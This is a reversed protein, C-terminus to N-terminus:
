GSAGTLLRSAAAAEQGAAALLAPDLDRQAQVLLDRATSQRVAADGARPDGRHSSLVALDVAAVQALVAALGERYARAQQRDRRRRLGAAYLLAGGGVVVAVALATRPAWRGFLERVGVPRVRPRGFAVGDGLLRYRDLFLRVVNQSPAARETLPSLYLGLVQDRALDADAQRPGAADIWQGRAVVVLEGPFRASLPSVLDPWPAGRPLLPLVAVRVGPGPQLRRREDVGPAIWTRSAALGDGVQRVLAAPAPVTSLPHVSEDDHEEFRPDRITDLAYLVQDTVDHQGLLARAVPLDDPVVTGEGVLQVETGRVLVLHLDRADAADSLPGYVQAHDDAAAGLARPPALVLRTSADMRARVAREDLVATAGPARVVQHDPLAAVVAPVDLAPPDDAAGAASGLGLLLVAALVVPRLM